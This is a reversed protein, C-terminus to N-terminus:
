DLPHVLRIERQSGQDQQQVGSHNQVLHKATKLRERDQLAHGSRIREALTSDGLSRQSTDALQVEDSLEPECQVTQM